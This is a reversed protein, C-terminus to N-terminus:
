MLLQTREVAFSPIIITGQKMAADNIIKALREEANDPHLRNGYTSEILVVDANDPKQPPYLLLDKEKGPEYHGEIKGVLKSDKFFLLSPLKSISYKKQITELYITNFLMIGM